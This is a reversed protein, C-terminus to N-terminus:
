TDYGTAKWVAVVDLGWDIQTRSLKKKKWKERQQNKLQIQTASMIFDMLGIWLWNTTDRHM